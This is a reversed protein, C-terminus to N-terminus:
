NAEKLKNLKRIEAEDRMMQGKTILENFYYLDPEIGIIKTSLCMSLNALPVREADLSYLEKIRGDERLIWFTGDNLVRVPELGLSTMYDIKEQKEDQFKQRKNEAEKDIEQWTMKAKAKKRMKEHSKKHAILDVIIGIPNWLFIIVFIIMALFFPIM